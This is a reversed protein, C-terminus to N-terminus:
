PCTIGHGRARGVEVHHVRCVEGCQLGGEALRVPLYPVVGPGVEVVVVHHVADVEGQQLAAESLCAAARPDIWSSSGLRSGRIVGGRSSAVLLSSNTTLVSYLGM